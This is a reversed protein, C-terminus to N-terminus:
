SPTDVLEVVEARGKYKYLLNTKTLSNKAILGLINMVPTEVCSTSAVVGMGGGVSGMGGKYIGDLGAKM